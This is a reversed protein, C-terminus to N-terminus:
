ILYFLNLLLLQNFIVSKLDFRFNYTAEDSFFYFLIFGFVM